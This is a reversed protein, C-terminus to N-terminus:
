EFAIAARLLHRLKKAYTDSTPAGIGPVHLSKEAVSIGLLVAIFLAVRDPAGIVGLLKDYYGVDFGKRVLPGVEDDHANMLLLHLPSPCDHERPATAFIQITTEILQEPTSDPLFSIEFADALTAEFLGRKSGYYRSILAVDVGAAMAIQRVSVNSYGQSWFLRRAQNLLKARTSNPPTM